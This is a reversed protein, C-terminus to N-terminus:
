NWTVNDLQFDGGWPGYVTGVAQFGVEIRSVSSAGSWGTLDLSLPTWTDSSVAYTKTLTSGDSGTLTVVAQYGTADPVGGWSDFDMRFTSAAALDLPQAPTVYASRESAAAVQDGSVQLCGGSACSGPRNAISTVQTVGSANQGAQWGMTGGDFDYGPANVTVTVTDRATAGDRSVATVPIPYDGPAATAPVNITTDVTRASPIGDGTLRVTPQAPTSSWGAPLAASVDVTLRGQATGSIAARVPVSGGATTSPTSSTAVVALATPVASTHVARLTHSGAPVDAVDIYGDEITARAGAVARGDWVIRGDLTVVTRAGDTPVALRATDGHPVTSHLVFGTASAQWSTSISGRPTPM